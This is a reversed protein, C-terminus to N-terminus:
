VDDGHRVREVKMRRIVDCHITSSVIGILLCNHRTVHITIDLQNSILKIGLSIGPRDHLFHTAEAALSGHCRGFILINLLESTTTDNPFVTFYCFPVWQSPLGWGLALGSWISVAQIPNVWQPRTICYPLMSKPWCRSQYHSTAQCCWAM